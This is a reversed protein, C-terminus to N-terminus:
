KLSDLVKKAEAALKSDLNAAIARNLETKAESARGLKHYAMGLFYCAEPDSPRQQVGEKLLRAASQFDNRRYSAKGL